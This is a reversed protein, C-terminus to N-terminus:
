YFISKVTNKNMKERKVGFIVLFLYFFLTKPNSLQSGFAPRGGFAQRSGSLPAWNQRIYMSSGCSITINISPKVLTTCHADSFLVGKLLMGPNQIEVLTM